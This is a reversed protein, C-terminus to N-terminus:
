VARRYISEQFKFGHQKLRADMGPRQSRVTWSKLGSKEVLSNIVPFLTSIFPTPQPEVSVAHVILLNSPEGLEREVCATFIGVFGGNEFVEFVMIAGCRIQNEIWTLGDETTQESRQILERFVPRFVGARSCTIERGNEM